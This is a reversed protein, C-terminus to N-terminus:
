RENLIHDLVKSDLSMDEPYLIHYLRYLDIVADDLNNNKILIEIVKIIIEKIEGPIYGLLSFVEILEKIADQDYKEVMDKSWVITRYFSIPDILKSDARKAQKKAAKRLDEFLNKPVQEMEMDDPEDEEEIEEDKPLQDEIAKPNVIASSINAIGQINQFPNELVGMTERIDMLLTKISGKIEAVEEELNAVKSEITDSEASAVISDIMSQDFTEGSNM